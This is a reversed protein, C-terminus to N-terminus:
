LDTLDFSQYSQEWEKLPKLMTDTLTYEINYKADKGKVPRAMLKIDTIEGFQSGICDRLFIYDKLAYRPFHPRSTVSFTDESIQDVIITLGAMSTKSKLVVIGKDKHYFPTDTVKVTLETRMFDIGKKNAM